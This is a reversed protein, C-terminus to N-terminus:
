AMCNEVTFPFTPAVSIVPAKGVLVVVVKVKVV